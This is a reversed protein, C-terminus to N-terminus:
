ITVTEMSTLYNQVKNIVDDIDKDLWNYKPNNLNLKYLRSVTIKKFQNILEKINDINTTEDDFIIKLTFRPLNNVKAM